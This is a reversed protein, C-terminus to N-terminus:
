IEFNIMQSMIFAGIGMWVAGGLGIVTLREDTFFKGMYNANANYLIAFVCFPLGGLIYASAKAESSMARIKLKMQARMRLVNALNSLTEALNGGTERQIELTICFFQFEPTGIRSATDELAVEMTKGIRIRDVVGRFESGVPEQIESAVITLTESIPLGSRLGRVMLEIADPFRVNFLKVRKGIQMGVIMHPLFLGIAAGVFLAMFFNGSKFLIWGGILAALGISTMAYTSITWAKGTRNLRTKLVTPKPVLSNFFSDMKTARNATIKRLQADINVAPGDARRTKLGALRRAQAKGTSPGSFAFAFLVLTIIVGAGMMLLTMPPINV